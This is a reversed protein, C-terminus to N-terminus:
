FNLFKYFIEYECPITRFSTTATESYYFRFKTVTTVESCSELSQFYGEYVLVKNCFIRISTHDKYIWWIRSSVDPVHSLRANSNCIKLGWTDFSWYVDTLFTNGGYLQFSIATESTRDSTESKLELIGDREKYAHDVFQEMAFDAIKPLLLIYSQLVLMSVSPCNTLKRIIYYYIVIIM